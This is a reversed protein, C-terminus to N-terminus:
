KRFFPDTWNLYDKAVAGTTKITSYNAIFIRKHKNHWIMAPYCESPLQHAGLCDGEDDYTAYNKRFILPTM